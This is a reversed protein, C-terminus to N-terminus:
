EVVFNMVRPLKAIVRQIKVQELHSAIATQALPRVVEEPALPDITLTARTKGNVQVVLTVMASALLAHDVKPWAQRHVDLGYRRHYLESAIHPAMPALLELLTRLGYDLTVPDVLDAQAKSLANTLEMLAAVSTNYAWRDIGDTTRAILQHVVLYTPNGTDPEGQNVPIRDALSWVRQLFRHCGEIMEDTQDTWDFDDAPPGVFLHFLRLADAGVTDFYRQPTVLNGKSKSMKSGGLRIMGQTFLRKFPEKLTAPALGLDSLARTFFRAYLLHLIAHEVGGIYQDVPMWDEVAQVDFPRDESFPDCFRLYYWSSDVFTDMTDTERTAPGGCRPCTTLRFADSHLLPSEGTPRFEVDDPALVPLQDDPVPVTGCAQCYLIPIPCGWFRQRSVLWDRLRYKVSESGAGIKELRSIVEAKAEEVSLGDLFGSNIKAGPGTYVPGVFGEPRAVTEVVPLGFNRAFEYDRDDEGPVAMIAGTGYHGLVYDAVYIPIREGTIPNIAYTGLPVGRKGADEGAMRELESRTAVEELFAKVREELDPATLRELDPHEPAVVAYTAGFITDPRTTFVRLKYDDLGDVEFSIEAGVSRGIWNRQMTKVRQPWDLDELGELLEDAYRTIRFFWQTLERRVVLDGSRECTGDALVQENALVTQCGPCWNVPADGRYVLGAQYFRLFLYQSWRIYSPDHSYIERRWDYAAGLRTLSAKLEAMREETFVRPHVGTRIAANEAPLGFSDFGIPSLVAEGNMTRYRVNLDGFTYNRVHGQHAPGSPYPYMCLVYSKPRPDDNSVHYAESQSWRAQWAVEIAPPDYRDSM